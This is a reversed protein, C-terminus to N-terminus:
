VHARGIETRIFMVSVMKCDENESNLLDQYNAYLNSTTEKLETDTQTVWLGCNDERLTIIYYGPGFLNISWRIELNQETYYVVCNTGHAENYFFPDYRGFYHSGKEASILKIRGDKRFMLFDLNSDGLAFFSFLLSFIVIFKKM